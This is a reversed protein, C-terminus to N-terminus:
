LYKLIFIVIHLLTLYNKCQMHMLESSIKKKAFQIVLTCLSCYWHCINQAYVCLPKNLKMIVYFYKFLLKKCMLEAEHFFKILESLLYCNGTYNRSLFIEANWEPRPIVIPNLFLFFFFLFGGFGFMCQEYTM